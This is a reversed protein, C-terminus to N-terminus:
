LFYGFLGVVVLLAIYYIALTFSFMVPIVATDSSPKGELGMGFDIEQPEKKRVENYRARFYREQGLFYADLIWFVITLFFSILVVRWGMDDKNLGVIVSILAITWGKLLFSNNAMRTIINQLFELHKLKAEMYFDKKNRTSGERFTRILKLVTLADFVYNKYSM